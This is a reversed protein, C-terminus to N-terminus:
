KGAFWSHSISKTGFAEASTLSLRMMDTYPSPEYELIVIETSSHSSTAFYAPSIM